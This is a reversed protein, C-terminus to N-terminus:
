RGAPLTIPSRGNQAVLSGAAVCLLLTVRGTLAWGVVSLHDQHCLGFGHGLIAHLGAIITTGGLLLWLGRQGYRSLRGVSLLLLLPVTVLDLPNFLYRNANDHLSAHPLFGAYYLLAGFLGSVTALVAGMFALFRGSAVRKKPRSLQLMAFLIVTALGAAIFWPNPLPLPDKYADGRWKKENSVLPPADPADSQRLEAVADHLADPMFLLEWRTRPADIYPGYILATMGGLLPMTAFGRMLSQRYTTPSPAQTHLHLAGGVALDIADRIPTVCNSTYLDYDFDRNEPRVRNSLFTALREAQPDSLNLEQVRVERQQYRMAIQGPNYSAVWFKLQKHAFKQVVGETEGFTGFNYALESGTQRDEVALASHGLREELDTGPAVTLLSIRFRPQNKNKISTPTEAHAAVSFLLTTLACFFYQLPRWSFRGAHFSM